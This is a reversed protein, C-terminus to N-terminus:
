TELQVTTTNTQAINLEGGRLRRTNETLRNEDKNEITTTQSLKINTLDLLRKETTTKLNDERYRPM